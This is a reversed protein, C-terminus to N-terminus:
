QMQFKVKAAIVGGPFPECWTVMLEGDQERFAWPHPYICYRYGASYDLSTATFLEFWDQWSGELQGAVSMLVKSTAQNSVGIFVYDKGEGPCFLNSRYVEGQALGHMVPRAATWDKVYASGNWFEYASKTLPLSTNVRGLM